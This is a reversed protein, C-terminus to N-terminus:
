TIRRHGEPQAERKTQKQQEDEIVKLMYKILEVNNKMLLYFIVELKSVVNHKLNLEMRRAAVELYEHLIVSCMDVKTITSDIVMDGQAISTVGGTNFKDLLDNSFRITYPFGLIQIGLDQLKKYFGM